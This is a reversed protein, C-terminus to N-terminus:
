SNRIPIRVGFFPQNHDFSQCNVVKSTFAVANRACLFARNEHRIGQGAFHDAGIDVFPAALHDLDDFGARVPNLRGAAMKAGAATTRELMHARFAIQGPLAFLDFMGQAFVADCERDCIHDGNRRARPPARGEREPCGSVAHM